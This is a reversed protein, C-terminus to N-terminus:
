PMVLCSMVNRSMGHDHLVVFSTLDGPIANCRRAYMVHCSGDRSMKVAVCSLVNDNGVNKKKEDDGGHCLM